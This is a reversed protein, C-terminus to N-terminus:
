RYTLFCSITALGRVSGMKRVVGTSSKLRLLRIAGMAYRNVLGRMEELSQAPSRLVHAPLEGTFAADTGASIGFRREDSRYRAHLAGIKTEFRSGIVQSLM